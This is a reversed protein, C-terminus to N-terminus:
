LAGDRPNKENLQNNINEIQKRFFEGLKKLDTYKRAWGLQGQLRYIEPADLEKRAMEIKLQRELTTVVGDLMLKKLKKWDQNSEVRNIAEVIQTLEGRKKQFVSLNDTEEELNDLVIKSNNM